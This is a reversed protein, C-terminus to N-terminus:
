QHTHNRQSLHDGTLPSLNHPSTPTNERRGQATVTVVTVAPAEEKGKPEQSEQAQAFIDTAYTSAFAFAIATVLAKQEPHARQKM